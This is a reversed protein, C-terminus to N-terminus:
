EEWEDCYICQCNDFSHRCQKRLKTIEERASMVNKNLVFTTPDFEKDIRAYLENMRERIQKGDM